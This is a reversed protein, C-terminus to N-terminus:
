EVRGADTSGSRSATVFRLGYTVERISQLPFSLNRASWYCDKAISKLWAKLYIPGAAKVSVYKAYYAGRGADYGRNLRTAELETKRGHHHYVVPKPDYVGSAGSWLAAAFADLDESAHYSTGAGLREDFGGIRDLVEKRFAMNAGHASGAPLFTRPHFLRREESEKITIRYDSKDFLLVRGGAFGIEPDEQFVEVMSDIYDAAVYCDDDTFAVIEGVAKRWGCNRAAALGPKSEFTTVIRGTGSKTQSMSKLYAATGDTSDNDVIVLEWSLM